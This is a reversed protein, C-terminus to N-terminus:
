PGPLPAVAPIDNLVVASVDNNVKDPERTPIPM